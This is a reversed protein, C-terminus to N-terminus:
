ISLKESFRYGVGHVTQILQHHDNKELAKRLRRIHVDVTREDIYVATGWVKDLLQARAYVRDPHQMFFHLLRFETPGVEVMEGAVTVIHNSPDLILERVQLRESKDLSGSRRLVAKVRSVLEKPSFPKALYDDAGADLGESKHDVEAKASLMIVPISATRADRRLRRLTEIGNVEPMMWDLLVLDPHHDIALVFGERGNGAQLLKFGAKALAHVVLERIDEEDEIILISSNTM